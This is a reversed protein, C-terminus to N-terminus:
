AEKTIVGRQATVHWATVGTAGVGSAITVYDGKKITAAAMILDKNVTAGGAAAIGDASVPSVQLTAGADKGTYLFTYVLGVATAPLTFVVTGSNKTVVFTKGTDAAILTKNANVDESRNKDVPAADVGNPFVTARPM